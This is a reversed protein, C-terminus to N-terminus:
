KSFYLNKKKEIAWPVKLGSKGHYLGLWRSAVYSLPNLTPIWSRHGHTRDGLPAPHPVTKKGSRALGQASKNTGSGDEYTCVARVWIHACTVSGMIWKDYVLPGRLRQYPSVFVSCMPFILAPYCRGLAARKGRPNCGWNGTCQVPVLFNDSGILKLRM